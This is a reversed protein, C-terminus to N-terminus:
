AAKLIHRTQNGSECTEKPGLFTRVVVVSVLTIRPRSTDGFSKWFNVGLIHNQTFLTTNYCCVSYFPVPSLRNSKVKCWTVEDIRLASSRLLTCHQDLCIKVRQALHCTYVISMFCNCWDCPFFLKSLLVQLEHSNDVEMGLYEPIKSSACYSLMNYPWIAVIPILRAQLITRRLRRSGFDHFITIAHWFFCITKSEIM